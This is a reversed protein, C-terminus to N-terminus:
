GTEESGEEDGSVGRRQREDRIRDFLDNMRKARQASEDLFFKLEPITRMQNRIRSALASRLEATYSALHHFADQRAAKTEGMVSVHVYAISLDDTMRVHTVTILPQVKGAFDTNLLQAIERQILSAVRETRISM